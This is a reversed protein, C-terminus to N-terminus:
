KITTFRITYKLISIVDTKGTTVRKRQGGSIGRLMENGVVTDACIELGLVQFYLAFLILILVFKMVKIIILSPKSQIIKVKLIYDVVLNEKQGETAVAQANYSMLGVIM